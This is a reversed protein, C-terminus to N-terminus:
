KLLQKVQDVNGEGAMIMLWTGDDLKGVSSKRSTQVSDPDLTAKKDSIATPLSLGPSVLLLLQLLLRLM